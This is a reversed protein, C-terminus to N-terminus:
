PKEGKWILAKTFHHLLITEGSAKTVCKGKVQGARYHSHQFVGVVEVIEDFSLGTLAQTRILGIDESLYYSEPCGLLTGLSGTYPARSTSIDSKQSM